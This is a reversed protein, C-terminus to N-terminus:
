VIVIEETFSNLQELGDVTVIHSNELGIVGKGPFILKPELALTMGQQLKLNQGAALFPFEDVELGIGHGVLRIREPGFGMFHDAYGWARTKELAYDYIEGSRVGPKAMKKIMEQLELAVAYAAMLDEPLKGLSFIRAHDSYYGNLAFIYDVMVPEHRRITKFGASQAMAPSPGMGGTPSSLFSPLAGAAGSMLHGYFMESGFLRMRVVGQHGRKRAEAEVKGALELETMGERLLHPVQAAVEDSLKGAQRMLNLEYASKVARILRIAYSVDVIEASEFISQYNFYLNAPLVDLELGLTGPLDYGNRKLIQPITTPSKMTVIRDIASEARARESSKVVLLIPNGDAPIYLNAQQITGSFYFLDVRQIILAGDINQKILHDQLKVIRHDLESKPTNLESTYM